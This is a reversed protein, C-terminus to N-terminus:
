PPVVRPALPDHDHDHDHDPSRSRTITITFLTITTTFPHDHDPEASSLQASNPLPDQRQLKLRGAHEATDLGPGRQARHAARLRSV